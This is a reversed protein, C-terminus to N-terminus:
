RWLRFRPRLRALAKIVRPDYGSNRIAIHAYTLHVVEVLAWLAVPTILLFPPSLVFAELETHALGPRPLSDSHEHRRTANTTHQIRPDRQPVLTQIGSRGPPASGQVSGVPQEGRQPYIARRQALRYLRRTTALRPSGILTESIPIPMAGVVNTPTAGM